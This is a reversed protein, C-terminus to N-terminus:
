VVQDTSRSYLWVKVATQERLVVEAGGLVVKCLVADFVVCVCVCVCVSKRGRKVGLVQCNAHHEYILDDGDGGHKCGGHDCSGTRSGLRKRTNATAGEAMTM